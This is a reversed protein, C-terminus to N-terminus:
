GHTRVLVIVAGAVGSLLLASLASKRAVFLWLAAALALPLQWVHHLLLALPLSSGAIAGIVCPGAGALFGTAVRNSRLREFRPAGVLVIVFSPTFAVCAALLGGVLGRAAYGVASVTLVVPGPTVQGLVVANLFQTGTMWHYTTVVDHQMLPIIVFGGGYSLAGVKFAVWALAGLGTASALPALSSSALLGLSAGTDHRAAVSAEIFGAVLLVLVLYPAVLVAAGGGLVVYLAWRVHAGRRDGIRRLSAVALQSATRLAVGPIAAGAGLATGLLWNPPRGSLFLASLALILVLGPLIFSLGALLGGRVGRLRWGCYIALQTSAPGPLLNTTAVAHEFEDAGIWDHRDVCLERLMAVHAPPGGFGVCGLRTWAFLITRLAM